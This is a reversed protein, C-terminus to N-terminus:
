RMGGRRVTASGKVNKARKQALAQQAVRAPSGMKGGPTAAATSRTYTATNTTPRPRPPTGSKPKPATASPAGRPDRVIGAANEAARAAMASMFTADDRQGRSRTEDNQLARVALNGQLAAVKRAAESDVTDLAADRISSRELGRAAMNNKTREGGEVRQLEAEQTGRTAEAAMAAYDAGMDALKTERDENRQGIALLSDADYYPAVEPGNAAPTKPKTAAKPKGKAGAKAAAPKPGALKAAVAAQANAANTQLAVSRAETKAAAASAM